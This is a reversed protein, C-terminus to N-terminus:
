TSGRLSPIGLDLQSLFEQDVESEARLWDAEFSGDPCGRMLWNWEAQAAILKERSRLYESFETTHCRTAPM